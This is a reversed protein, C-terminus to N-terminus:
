INSWNPRTTFIIWMTRTFALGDTVMRNMKCLKRVPVRLSISGGRGANGGCVGVVGPNPVLLLMGNM